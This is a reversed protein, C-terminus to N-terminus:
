QINVGMQLQYDGAYKLSGNNPNINLTTGVGLWCYRTLGSTFDRPNSGNVQNIFIDATLEKTPDINSRLKAQTIKAIGNGTNNTSTIGTQPITQFVSPNARLYDKMLTYQNRAFLSGNCSSLVFISTYFNFLSPSGFQGNQNPYNASLTNFALNAVNFGALNVSNSLPQTQITSGRSIVQNGGTLLEGNTPEFALENDLFDQKCFYITQGNSTGVIQDEVTFTRADPCAALASQGLLGVLTIISSKLLYHHQISLHHKPMIVELRSTSQSSISYFIIPSNYLQNVM